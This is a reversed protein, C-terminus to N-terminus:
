YSGPSALRCLMCLFCKKFCYVENKSIKMSFTQSTLSANTNELLELHPKITCRLILIMETPVKKSTNAFPRTSSLKSVQIAYYINEKNLLNGTLNNSLVFLGKQFIIFQSMIFYYKLNMHECLNKLYSMNKLIGKMSTFTM